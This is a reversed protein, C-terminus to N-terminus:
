TEMPIRGMTLAARSLTCCTRRAARPSALSLGRGNPGEGGSVTTGYLVGKVDILGAIPYDGDPGSFSHLLEETVHGGRTIRISFICGPAYAGGYYTTGYSGIRSRRPVGSQEAGRHESGHSAPPESQRACAPGGLPTSASSASWCSHALM